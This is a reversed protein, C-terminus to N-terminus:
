FSILLLLHVTKYCVKKNIPLTFIFNFSLFPTDDRKHASQADNKLHTRSGTRQGPRQQLSRSVSLLDRREMFPELRLLPEEKTDLEEAEELREWRSSSEHIRHPLITLSHSSTRLFFSFCSFTFATLPWSSKCHSTTRESAIPWNNYQFTKWNVESYYCLFLFVMPCGYFRDPM